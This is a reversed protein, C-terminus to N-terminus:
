DWKIVDSIDELLVGVSFDVPGLFFVFVHTAVVVAFGSDSGACVKCSANVVGTSAISGRCGGTALAGVDFFLFLVEIQCKSTELSLRFFNKLNKEKKLSLLNM